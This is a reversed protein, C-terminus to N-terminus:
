PINLVSMRRGMRRVLNLQSREKCHLALAFIKTVLFEFIEMVALEQPVARPVDELTSEGIRVVLPTSQKYKKELLSVLKTPIREWPSRM